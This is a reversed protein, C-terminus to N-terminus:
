VNPIGDDIDGGLGYLLYQGCLSISTGLKILTMAETGQDFM